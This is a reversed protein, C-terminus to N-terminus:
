EEFSIFRPAGERDNKVIRDEIEKCYEPSASGGYPEKFKVGNWQFPNHSAPIMIASKAKWEKTLWSICPTPCFDNALKVRVGNAALVGAAEEAFLPSSFRRDYGLVVFSEKQGHLDCFAQIVRRVNEYTYDRGIIARWGDTGFQIPTATMINEKKSGPGDRLGSEVGRDHQVSRGRGKGCHRLGRRPGALHPCYAAGADREGRRSLAADQLS